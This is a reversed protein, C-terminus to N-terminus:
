QMHNVTVENEWYFIIILMQKYYGIPLIINKNLRAIVGKNLRSFLRM